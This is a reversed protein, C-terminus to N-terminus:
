DDSNEPKEPGLAPSRFDDIKFPENPGRKLETTLVNRVHQYRLGLHKAIDKIKFGKYHLYRICASKTKLKSRLWDLSPMGNEELTTTGFQEVLFQDLDKPEMHSLDQARELDPDEGVEVVPVQAKSQKAM